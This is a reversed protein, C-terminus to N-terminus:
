MAGAADRKPSNKKAAERFSSGPELRQSLELAGRGKFCPVRNYNIMINNGASRSSIPDKGKTPPINSSRPISTPIAPLERAIFDDLPFSFHGRSEFRRSVDRDGNRLVDYPRQQRQFSPFFCAHRLRGLGNTIPNSRSRWKQCQSIKSQFRAIPTAHGATLQRTAALFGDAQSQSFIDDAYAAGRPLPGLWRALM